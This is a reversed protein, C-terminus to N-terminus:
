ASIDFSGSGGVSGEVTATEKNVTVSATDQSELTKLDRGKDRVTLQIRVSFEIEKSDGADQPSLDEPDIMSHDFLNGEISYTDEMEPELSGPISKGELQEWSGAYKLDLRLTVRDPTVSTKFEYRGDVTLRAKSIPESTDVDEDPINLEDVSLEDAKSPQSLTTIGLATATSSAIAIIVNRRRM